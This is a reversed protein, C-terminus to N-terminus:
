LKNRIPIKGFIFSRQITYSFFYIRGSLSCRILQQYDTSSIDTKKRTLIKILEHDDYERLFVERALFYSTKTKNTRLKNEIEADKNEGFKKQENKKYIELYDAFKYNSFGCIQLICITM